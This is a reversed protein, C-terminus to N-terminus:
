SAAATRTRLQPETTQPEIRPPDTSSQRQFRMAAFGLGMVTWFWIAGQPGELYVDFAGNVMAALWYVLLWLDIQAWLVNGDRRARRFARFLSIGFAAHMAIWLSFGPVGMRALATMHGSHPSRNDGAVGRFGDDSALDIGFGKGTWFYPGGFTYGVIKGWWDLRWQETSELGTETDSAISLANSAIQQVSLPRPGSGIVPNFLLALGVVFLGIAVLPVVRRSPRLLFVLAVGASVALLGGRNAAAVVGFGALWATWLLVDPVRLGRANSAYLGVLLFAAVGALHVGMDGGKFVLLPEDSGFVRPLSAAVSNNLLAAIPVWLLFAPLVWRYISVIREFHVERIVLPIMLAFLAYGWFAGDRLSNVGYTPIHPVTTLVGWGIFAILIQQPVSFRTRFGTVIVALIGLGLAIEGVFVPAAGVHAFGRSLFAYGTLIVALVVLFVSPLRTGVGALLAVVAGLGIGGLLLAQQGTAGLYGAGLAAAVALLVILWRSRGPTAFSIATM